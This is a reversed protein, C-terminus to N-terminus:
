STIRHLRSTIHIRASLAAKKWGMKRFEDSFDLYTQREETFRTGGKAKSSFSAASRRYLFTVEDDVYISGGDRIISLEAIVDQTNGKTNDFGYKKLTSTRWLISPFYIWNGSCLSTAVNEGSHLGAGKPRLFKKLRDATPLYVKDNEDIVNVGPQYMDSEGIKSLATELYTPLLLDDCGFIVCYDATAQDLVYNFNRVLGMNEKHRYYTIRDDKIKSFYKQAEDSPYCDDVILMKWNQETQAIVSDVAKKLLTFDGWYPLLIDIKHKTNKKTRMAQIM